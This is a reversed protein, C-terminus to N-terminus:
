NMEAMLMCVYPNISWADNLTENFEGLRLDLLKDSENIEWLTLPKDQSTTEFIEPLLEPLVGNWCLEILQEKQSLKKANQKEEKECWDRKFFSTGPILLIEQNTTIHKM